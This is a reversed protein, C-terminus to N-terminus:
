DRSWINVWRTSMCVRRVCIYGSAGVRGGFPFTVSALIRVCSLGLGGLLVSDGGIIGHPVRPAFREWLCALPSHGLISSRGATAICAELGRLARLVKSLKQDVVGLVV